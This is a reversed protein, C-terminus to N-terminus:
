RLRVVDETKKDQESAERLTSKLMGFLRASRKQQLPDLKPRKDLRGTRASLSHQEDSPSQEEASAVRKREASVSAHAVDGEGEAPLGPRYKHWAILM